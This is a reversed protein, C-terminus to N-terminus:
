RVLSLIESSSETPPQQQLKEAIELAQRSAIDSNSLLLNQRFYEAAVDFRGQHLAVVGLNYYSKLLQPLIAQEAEPHLKLYRNYILAAGDFQGKLFYDNAQALLQRDTTDQDQAANRARIKWELAQLNKPDIRLVQEARAMSEAYHRQSFNSSAENMLRAIQQSRDEAVVIMDEGQSAPSSDGASQSSEGVSAKFPLPSLLKGQAANASIRSFALIAALLLVFIGFAFAAIKKHSLENWHQLYEM